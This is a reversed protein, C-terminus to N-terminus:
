ESSAQKPQSNELARELRKQGIESLNKALGLEVILQWAEAIHAHDSGQIKGKGMPTPGPGKNHLNWQSTFYLDNAVLPPIKEVASAPHTRLMVFLGILVLIPTLNM